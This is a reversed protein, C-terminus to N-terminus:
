AAPFYRALYDKIAERDEPGFDGPKQLLKALDRRGLLPIGRISKSFWPLETGVFCLVGQVPVQANVAALAATVAEVQTEVADILGTKDRGKIFLKDVRPSVLGGEGRVQLAGSYAKADVVYVGTAAVVLHDINARSRRGDPHVLSRDHLAAVHEGTLEDIRAGVKREGAAGTAWATTSPPPSSLALILGGLRPHRSRIATERREVRRQHERAASGGAISEAPTVVAPVESAGATPLCNLCIVTRASSDWGAREGAPLATACAACVGDRRLAMVKM